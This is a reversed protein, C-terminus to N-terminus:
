PREKPHLVTTSRGPIRFSEDEGEMPTVGNGLYAPDETSWLVEWRKVRPPALLPEPAVTLHRYIGFNVIVLRDDDHEGFYRLVFSDHGIVAGDLQGRRHTRSFVPDERRLRLLDAYMRYIEAHMPQHRQAHDLKCREFTESSSPDPVHERMQPHSVSPFQSLFEARGKRVLKALEEHHDAFYQFPQPAAYEQGQFLMPTQPMLLLLAVMAKYHGLSSLQHTRLGRVLNSVQDHNEIFNVFASPPLHLAPTGRRNRQWHYYQGQYLFGWKAAAVFEQPRGLYDTLYAENQGTLSVIATHHFDDNWLADMGYGGQAPPHVIRTDQPENENILYISRGNGADRAANSIEELIHRKSSDYIAQTADFRFGDFHYEDIWYRANAIFFERVPASNEGDFNLPEGWETQKEANFYHDSFSKLYNGDPGLHNYVVDLIVGIGAAHARDIFRRLDDPTGYLRTPAFMDVGDYGWGFKGAFDAIPMMEICTIGLEALRPLEREAAAWTGERTFTGVHLEYLVQMQPTIGKWSNDSWEFGRPDIVQSPGHPGQPQFRSVPDPYLYQEDDLRFRYLTGAAAAPVAAAFYGDAEAQLPVTTSNDGEIVVAVSRRKPAWVRFHM